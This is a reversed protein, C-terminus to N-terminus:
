LQSEIPLWSIAKTTARKIFGVEPDHTWIKPPIVSGDRWRLKGNELFLEYSNNQEIKYAYLSSLEETLEPHIFFVGMETNLRASRPDFNFSGIFGINGDVIFAKTHLSAGSSGLLSKDVEVHPTFEYLDVGLKLLPVRYPMYGSHVLMVDTAALSNTVVGIDVERQRLGKLLEMGEKGPVFYPSILILQDQASQWVKSLVNVVWAEKNMDYAKEPPDSYVHAHETWYLPKESNFLAQVTTSNRLRDVYVNRVKIIDEDIDKVYERLKALSGKKVKVLSKLPITTPSNWFQDFINETELVADGVLLVDVDFFNTQKAADYYEDGINRGGVIAMRGDVIWAKNHMRRNLRGVRFVMEVGKRLANGRSYIPNFMRVEINPHQELTALITDKDHANMDDLLLRIRVGRDAARLLEYSLLNGTLDNHWIYYQLDLSRGAERATMARVAFAELNDDLLVLGTQSAHADILPQVIRDIKTTAQEVPIMYSAKKDVYNKSGCAVLSLLLLLFLFLTGVLNTIKLM